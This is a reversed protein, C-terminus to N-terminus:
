QKGLASDAAVRKLRSLRAGGGSEVIKRRQMARLLAQLDAPAINSEPIWSPETYNAWKVLVSAQQKGAAPKRELICEIIYRNDDPGGAGIPGAQIEACAARATLWDEPSYLRAQRRSLAIERSGVAYLKDRPFSRELQTGHEDAICYNGHIKSDGVIKFPGVFRHVLKSGPTEERLWVWTGEQLRHHSINHSKDQARRQSDQAKTATERASLATTHAHQLHHTINTILTADAYGTNTGSGAGEWQAIAMYNTLPRPSRGFMVQHPSYGTASHVTIRIAMLVFDLWAPWQRPSNATCKRLIDLLARNFREVQGNAQPRYATIIRREVGHLTALADVIENVFEPGQDSILITPPGYTAIISWLAAAVTRSEKNMLKVAVPFKSLACVCLLIYNFRQGEFEDSEDLMLLDMHVRDFVGAPIPIAQAAHHLTVHSNGRQCVVCGSVCTQVDDLMGVWAYGREEILTVTKFVSRHGLIHATVVIDPRAAPPPVAFLKTVARADARRWTIAEVHGHEDFSADYVLLDQAIRKRVKDPLTSRIDGKNAISRLTEPSLWIDEHWVDTALHESAGAVPHHGSSTSPHPAASTSSTAPQDHAANSRDPVAPEAPPATTAAASSSSPVVVIEIKAEPEDVDNDPSAAGTDQNHKLARAATSDPPAANRAGPSTPAALTRTSAGGAARAAIRTSPARKTTDVVLASAAPAAPHTDSNAKGVAPHPRSNANDIAINITNPDLVSRDTRKSVQQPRQARPLGAIPLAASSVGSFPDAPQHSQRQTTLASAVTLHRRLESLRVPQDPILAPDSQRTLADVMSMCASKGARHHIEADFVQVEAAWRQRIQDVQEGIGISKTESLLTTLAQHDTFIHLKSGYVLPGIKRLAWVVALYERQTASYSQEARSLARSLHLIPRGAGPQSLVAAITSGSADTFLHFTGSGPQGPPIPICLGSANILLRKLLDFTRQHEDTWVFTAGARMLARFPAAIEAFGYVFRRWFGFLGLVRLLEKQTRPPRLADIARFAKDGLSINHFSVKHGLVTLQVQGFKCKDISLVINKEVCRDLVRRLAALHHDYNSDSGDGTAVLLDDFFHRLTDLMDSFFTAMRANFEAPMNRPGLPARAFMFTGYETIFATKHRDDPHIVMQFYAKALDMKSLWKHAAAFDLMAMLDPITANWEVTIENLARFDHVVRWEPTGDEKVRLVTLPPSNFYRANDCREIIGLQEALVVFDRVAQKQQPNSFNSEHHGHHTFHDTRCPRSASRSAQSHPTSQSLSSSFTEIAHVASSPSQANSTTRAAERARV